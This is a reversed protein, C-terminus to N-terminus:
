AGCLSRASPVKGGVTYKIAKLDQTNAERWGKGFGATDFKPNTGTSKLKLTQKWSGGFASGLTATRGSRVGHMCEGGGNLVSQAVTLKSGQVSTFALQGVYMKSKKDYRVGSVYTRNTIKGKIAKSTSVENWPLLVSPNGCAGPGIAYKEYHFRIGKASVDWAAPRPIYYGYDSKSAVPILDNVCTNKSKAFGRSVAVKTTIDDQAVFTGIGVKKGTKLDLTFSRVNSWASAGCVYSSFHMTVSAYRNKYIATKSPAAVFSATQTRGCGQQRASNFSKLEAKVMDNAYKTFVKRNKATSNGLVPLKVTQVSKKPSKTNTTKKKGTSIKPSKAKKAGAIMVNPASVSLTAGVVTAMSAPAAAAPGALALSGFVLAGSALLSVIKKVFKGWTKSHNLSVSDLIELQKFLM